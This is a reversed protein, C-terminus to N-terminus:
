IAAAIRMRLLLVHESVRLEALSFQRYRQKDRCFIRHLLGRQKPAQTLGRHVLLRVSSCRAHTRTLDPLTIAKRLPPQWEARHDRQQKM